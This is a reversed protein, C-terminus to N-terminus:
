SAEPMEVLYEQYRKRLWSYNIIFCGLILISLVLKVSHLPPYFDTYRIGIWMLTSVIGAYALCPTFVQGMYQNFRKISTPISYLVITWHVKYGTYMYGIFHSFSYGKEPPFLRFPKFISKYYAYIVYSVLVGIVVLLPLWSLGFITVLPNSEKKLDPTHLYTAYVDISRSLLIWITTLLFRSRKTM